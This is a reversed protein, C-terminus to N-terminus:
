VHWVCRQHHVWGLARRLYDLLGVAGDSTIGRVADLSLGAQPARGCLRRWPAANEEGEAVVPPYLL